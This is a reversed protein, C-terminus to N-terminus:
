ELYTLASIQFASANIILHTDMCVCPFSILLTNILKQNPNELTWFAKSYLRISM